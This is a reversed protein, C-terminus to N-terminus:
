LGGGGGGETLYILVDDKILKARGLVFDWDQVYM